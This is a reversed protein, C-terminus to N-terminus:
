RKMKTYYRNLFAFMEYVSGVDYSGGLNNKMEKVFATSDDSFKQKMIKLSALMIDSYETLEQRMAEREAIREQNKRHEEESLPKYTVISYLYFIVVFLLIGAILFLLGNIIVATLGPLELILWAILMLGGVLLVGISFFGFYLSLALTVLIFLAKFWTSSILWTVTNVVAGTTCSFIAFALFALGFLLCWFVIKRMQSPTEESVIDEGLSKIQEHASDINGTYVAKKNERRKTEERILEVPNSYHQSAAMDKFRANLQPIHASALLALVLACRQLSSNETITAVEHEAAYRREDATLGGFDIFARIEFSLEMPDLPHRFIKHKSM